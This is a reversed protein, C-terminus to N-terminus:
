IVEMGMERLREKISDVNEPECTETLDFRMGLAEYKGRGIRHYPMLEILPTNPLSIIFDAIAIIDNPSDNCGPIVPVRFIIDSGHAALRRANDLILSNDAGCFRLHGAPDIMKLDYLFLDTLNAIAELKEWSCAGCTEVATYLGHKKLEGLLALSFEYQRLPEGGSLTVGGGSTEYYIADRMVTDVVEAATM